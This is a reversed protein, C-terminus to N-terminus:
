GGYRGGQARQWIYLIYLMCLACSTSALALKQNALAGRNARTMACGQTLAVLQIRLTRYGMAFEM